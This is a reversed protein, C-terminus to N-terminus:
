SVDKLFTFNISTIMQILVKRNQSYNSPCKEKEKKKRSLEIM